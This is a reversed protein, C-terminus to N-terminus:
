CYYVKAGSGTSVKNAGPKYNSIKIDRFTWENETGDESEMFDVIKVDKKLPPFVVKALVMKNSVDHFFIETNLPMNEVRRITYRDGNKKNILQTKNSFRIWQNYYIPISLTVVTESSKPEISVLRIAGFPEKSWEFLDESLKCYPNVYVPVPDPESVRSTTTTTLGDVRDNILRGSTTFNLKSTSPDMGQMMESMVSSLMRLVEPMLKQVLGLKSFNQVFDMSAFSQENLQEQPKSKLTAVTEKVSKLYNELELYDEPKLSSLVEKSLDKHTLMKNNVNINMAKLFEDLLPGSQSTEAKELKKLIPIMKDASNSISDLFKSSQEKSLANAFNMKLTDSVVTTTTRIKGDPGTTTVGKTYKVVQSQGPVFCFTALLLTLFPVLILKRVASLKSPEHNKMQIFRKKTFSQNFGNALRIHNGMVEELIITQYQYLDCGRDLVSRDAQFEHISRLDKRILWQIPNFWFLCTAIEQILVDVYHKHRIHWSEHALIVELQADKLNVPLFITKGFSFPSAINPHRVLRLGDQFVVVGKRRLKRIGAYQLILNLSLVLLVLLYAGILLGGLSQELLTKMYYLLYVRSFEVRVPKSPEIRSPQLANSPNTAAGTYAFSPASLAEPSLRHTLLTPSSPTGVSDIHMQPAYVPIRFQSVLAAAVAISLLFFRSETYTANKRFFSRYFFLLAGSALIYKAVSLVWPLIEHMM